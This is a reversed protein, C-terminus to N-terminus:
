SFMPTYISSHFHATNKNKWDTQTTLTRNCRKATASEAVNLTICDMAHERTTLNTPAKASCEVAGCQATIQWKLLGGQTAAAPMGTCPLLHIVAATHESWREPAAGGKLDWPFLPICQPWLTKILSFPVSWFLTFFCIMVFFYSVSEWEM